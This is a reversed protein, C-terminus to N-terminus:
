PLLNFTRVLFVAMQDRTVPTAPCYQKPTTSCGTTIGEAALQEIWAAAWYTTPVDAFVGTPAPPVYASGYKARLLFVAMQDRTVPTAPCYNGGGCGSTIGDATLQEIWAGAWQTSPVDGFVIGSAPPPVYAGGNIGRLLFVAMQDRTVVSGPCYRGSGCGSTIGNQVLAEIYQWAWHITPVDTFTSRTSTAGFEHGGIDSSFDRSNAYYDETVENITKAKGRAPSGSQIEFWSGTLQGATTQGVRILLPNGIVDGSGAVSSSPIKSWLNNSFTLGTKTGIVAVPLSGEQLVINNLVRSNSHSGSAIVMGAEARSNVFTNNAVLVNVMGGGQVGQWWHLNRYTGYVFNNIITINSSAPNYREDGMMIGERSGVTVASNDSNYILNRQLLVNTADSIYVNASWNDYVINGEIITGNAEYTSIGEGWNNYVTNGRLTVYNPHRAASLGTAYTGRTKNGNENSM